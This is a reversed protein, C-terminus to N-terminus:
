ELVSPDFIESVVVLSFVFSVDSNAWDTAAVHHSQILGEPRLKCYGNAVWAKSRPQCFSGKLSPSNIAQFALEM